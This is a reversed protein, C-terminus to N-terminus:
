GGLRRTVLRDTGSGILRGFPDVQIWLTGSVETQHRSIQLLNGRTHATGAFRFTVRGDALDTRRCERLDVASVESLPHRAIAAREVAGIALLRAQALVAPDTPPKPGWPDPESQLLAIVLTHVAPDQTAVEHVRTENLSLRDEPTPDNVRVLPFLVPRGSAQEYHRAAPALALNQSLVQVVQDGGTRLDAPLAAAFTTDMMAPQASGTGRADAGMGRVLISAYRPQVPLPLELNLRRILDAGPKLSSAQAGLLDGFSAAMASGLHPSAISILREVDGGYPVGPLADQLYARAVLGGASHAVLAVQRAGTLRTAAKICANLELARYALGDTNASASFQLVFLNANGPGTDAGTAILQADPPAAGNTARLEGGYRFGATRLAGIMGSWRAEPATADPDYDGWANTHETPDLVIGHILLTVPPDALASLSALLLIGGALIRALGDVM